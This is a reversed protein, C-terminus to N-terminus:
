VRYPHLREDKDRLADLAIASGGPAFDRGLSLLIMARLTWSEATAYARVLRQTGELDLPRPAPAQAAAAGARQPAQAQQTPACLFLPLLLAAQMSNKRALLPAIG